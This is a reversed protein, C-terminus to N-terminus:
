QEKSILEKLQFIDLFNYNSPIFPKELLQKRWSEFRLKWALSEFFSKDFYGQYNELYNNDKLYVMANIFKSSIKTQQGNPSTVSIYGNNDMNLLTLNQIIDGRENRIPRTNIMVSFLTDPFFPDTMVVANHLYKPEEELVKRKRPTFVSRAKNLIALSKAPVSAKIIGRFTIAPKPKSVGNQVALPPVTGSTSAQNSLLRIGVIIIIGGTIAAAFWKFIFHRIKATRTRQTTGARLGAAIQQWSGQPPEVEFTQLREALLTQGKEERLIGAIHIWASDPPQVEHQLLRDSFESAM